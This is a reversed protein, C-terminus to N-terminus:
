PCTATTAPKPGSCSADASTAGTSDACRVARSRFGADCAGFDSAEWHTPNASAAPVCSGGVCLNSGGCPMGTEVADTYWACSGPSVQCTLGNSGCSTSAPTTCVGYMDWSRTRCAADRSRVCSSAFCTGGARCATGATVGYDFGCGAHVGDCTEALDCTGQSPRCADGAPRLAGSACCPETNACACGAALQCTATCCADTQGGPDCAEGADVRGDGCRMEAWDSGAVGDFCTAQPSALFSSLMSLSATSFQTPVASPDTSSAMVYGSGADHGMGFAHGLAHVIVTAIDDATFDDGGLSHMSASMSGSACLSSTSALEVVSGAPDLTTFLMAHDFSGIANTLAARRGQVTTRFTGLALDIDFEDASVSFPNSCDGAQMNLYCGTCAPSGPPATDCTRTVFDGRSAYAPLVAELSLTFQPSQIAGELRTKALLFYSELKKAADTGFRLAVTEDYYLVLEITKVAGAATTCNTGGAASSFYALCACTYGGVTNTCVSGGGCPSPLSACEDVDDACTPGGYGAPCVCDGNPACGGGNACVPASGVCAGAACASATTCANGDDCVTGDHHTPQCVEDVISWSTCLSDTPCSVGADAVASADTDGGGDLEVGADDAGADIAISGDEDGGDSREDSETACGGLTALLSSLWVAVLIRVSM